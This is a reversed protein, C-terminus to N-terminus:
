HTSELSTKLFLGLCMPGHSLMRFEKITCQKPFLIPSLGRSPSCVMWCWPPGYPVGDLIPVGTPFCHSVIALAAAPLCVCWGVFPFLFTCLPLCSRRLLRICWGVCAHMPSLSLCASVRGRFPPCEMWFWTASVKYYSIILAGLLVNNQPFLIRLAASSFM